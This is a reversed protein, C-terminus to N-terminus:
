ARYQSAARSKICQQLRQKLRFCRVRLANNKLGSGEALHNHANRKSGTFLYYQLILDREEKALASLCEELWGEMDEKNANDAEFTSGEPSEEWLGRPLSETSVFRARLPAEENSVWRAIGLSFTKVNGVETGEELRRATRDLAEDALRECDHHRRIRFFTILRARLEEYLVGAQDKDSHLRALLSEFRQLNLDTLLRFARRCNVM